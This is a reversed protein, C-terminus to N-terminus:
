TYAFVPREWDISLILLGGLPQSPGFNRKSIAFGHRISFNRLYYRHTNESIDIM